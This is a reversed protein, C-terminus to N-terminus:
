QSGGGSSNAPIKVNQGGVGKAKALAEAAEPPLYVRKLIYEDKIPVKVKIGLVGQYRHHLAISEEDVEDFLDIGKAKIEAELTEKRALLEKEQTVPSNRRMRRSGDTIRSGPLWAPKWASAFKSNVM